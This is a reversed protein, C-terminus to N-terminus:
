KVMSGLMWLMGRVAENKKPKKDFFAKKAYMPIVVADPEDETRVVTVNMRYMPTGWIKLSKSNTVPSQFGYEDPVEDVTNLLLGTSGYDM